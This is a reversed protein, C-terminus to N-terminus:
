DCYKDDDEEDYESIDEDVLPEENFYDYEEKEQADQTNEFTNMYLM